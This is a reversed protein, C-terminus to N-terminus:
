AQKAAAKRRVRANAMEALGIGTIALLLHIIQVVVHAPGLLMERQSLGVIAIILGDLFTSVQLGISGTRLAAMTGVVWLLAVFLIGLLMHILVLGSPENGTWFVIGLVLNILFVVRLAMLSINM